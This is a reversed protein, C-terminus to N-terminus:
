LSGDQGGRDKNPSRKGDSNELRHLLVMLKAQTIQDGWMVILKELPHDMANQRFVPLEGKIMEIDIELRVIVKDRLGIM